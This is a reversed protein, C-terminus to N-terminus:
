FCKLAKPSRSVWQNKDVVSVTVGEIDHVPSDIVKKLFAVVENYFVPQWIPM